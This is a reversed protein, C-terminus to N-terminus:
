APGGQPQDTVSRKREEEKRSLEHITNILRGGQELSSTVEPGGLHFKETSDDAFAFEELRRLVGRLTSCYEVARDSSQLPFTARFAEPFRTTVEQVTQEAASFHLTQELYVRIILSLRSAFDRLTIRHDRVLLELQQLDRRATEIPTLAPPPPPLKKPRRRWWLWLLLLALLAAAIAAALVPFPSFEPLPKIDHFGSTADHTAM